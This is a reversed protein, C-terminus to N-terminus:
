LSVHLLKLTFIHKSFSNFSTQRARFHIERHYHLRLLESFRIQFILFKNQCMIREIRAQSLLFLPTFIFHFNHKPFRNCGNCKHASKAYHSGVYVVRDKFDNPIFTGFFGVHLFMLLSAWTSSHALFSLSMFDIEKILILHRSKVFNRLSFNWDFM